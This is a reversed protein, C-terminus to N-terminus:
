LQEFAGTKRHMRNEAENVEVGALSPQVKGSVKASHM